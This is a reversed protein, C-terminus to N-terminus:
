DYAAKNALVSALVIVGLITETLRLSYLMSFLVWDREPVSTVELFREAGSSRGLKEEYFSGECSQTKEMELIVRFLLWVFEDRFM